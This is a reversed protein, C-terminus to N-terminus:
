FVTLKRKLSVWPVLIKNKTKEIINKLLLIEKLGTYFLLSIVILISKKFASNKLLLIEDFYLENFASNVTDSIATSQVVTRRQIYRGM